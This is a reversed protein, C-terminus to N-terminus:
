EVRVANVQGTQGPRSTVRATGEETEIVAGKTVINRRVYNPNATNEVVDLIETQVTEGNATVNAVDTSLARVKRTGGRSEVVRFRPEGIETETPSRGLEHKKKKHQPRARAGTKLRKSRGQYQM